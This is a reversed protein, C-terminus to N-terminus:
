APARLLRHRRREGGIGDFYAVPEDFVDTFDAPWPYRDFEIVTGDRHRAFREENLCYFLGGPRLCRRILEIYEGILEYTMEQFSSANVAADVSGAPILDVQQPCLFVFDREWAVQDVEEVEHPLVVSAQPAYYSVAAYGQSMVEPLDVFVFRCGYLAHLSLALAAAGPGIELVRRVRERELHPGLANAMTAVYFVLEPSADVQDALFPARTLSDASLPAGPWARSASEFANQARVYRARRAALSALREIRQLSRELIRWSRPRAARALKALAAAIRGVPRGRAAEWDARQEGLQGPDRYPSWSAVGLAESGLPFAHIQATIARWFESVEGGQATTGGSEFLPSRQFDAFREVRDSGIPWANLHM